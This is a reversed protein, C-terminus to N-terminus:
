MLHNNEVYANIENIISETLKIISEAKRKSISYDSHVIQNRLNSLEKIQGYRVTIIKNSYLKLLLNYLSYNYSFPIIKSKHITNELLKFASIAASNYNENKYLQEAANIKSDPNTVLLQNFEDILEELFGKDDLSKYFVIKEKGMYEWYGTADLRSILIINKNNKRLTKLEWNVNPNLQSIDVLAIRSKQIVLESKTMWNDSPYLIDDLIIPTISIDILSSFVFEKLQSLIQHPAAVYCIKNIEEPLLLEEKIKNNNSILLSKNKSSMFEKIEKFFKELIIPYNKKDGPLNIVKINRREFKAIETKSADVMVCYAFRNLKGLRDNIIQWVNRIDNDDFSYGVLFMTKTIFLNSLYTALLKNNSLFLDYDKETIVMRDPTNFDGHLKILKTSDKINVALKEENAIISYPRKLSQLTEEMLFDFNTTCITDYFIECFAEYTKSPRVTNLHLEQSLLEILKSRSFEKEYVSFADIPNSYEYDDIYSAIKEGLEKWDPMTINKPIDANKSFGAGVIPVINDNIFDELLPRPVLNLYKYM